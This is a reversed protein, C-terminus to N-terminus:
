TPYSVSVQNKDSPLFTIERPVSWVRTTWLTPEPTPFAPNLGLDTGKPQSKPRPLSDGQAKAAKGHFLPLLVGVEWSPQSCFLLLARLTSLQPAQGAALAGRICVTM